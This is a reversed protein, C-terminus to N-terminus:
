PGLTDDIRNRRDQKDADNGQLLKNTAIIRMREVKQHIADLLKQLLIGVEQDTTHPDRGVASIQACIERIRDDLRRTHM